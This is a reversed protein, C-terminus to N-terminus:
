RKGGRGDQADAQAISGALHIKPQGHIRSVCHTGEGDLVRGPKSVGRCMEKCAVPLKVTLSAFSVEIDWGKDADM